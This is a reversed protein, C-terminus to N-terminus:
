LFLAATIVIVHIVIKVAPHPVDRSYPYDKFGRGTRRMWSRIMVAPVLSTFLDTLVAIVIVVEPVTSTYVTSMVIVILLASLAKNIMGRPDYRGNMVTIMQNLEATKGDDLAQGDSDHLLRRYWTQVMWLAAESIIRLVAWIIVIFQVLM